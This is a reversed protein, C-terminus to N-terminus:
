LGSPAVETSRQTEQFELGRGRNEKGKMLWQLGSHRRHGKSINKCSGSVEQCTKNARPPLEYLSDWCLQASHCILAAELIVWVLMALLLRVVPSQTGGGTWNLLASTIVERLFLPWGKLFYLSWSIRCSAWTIPAGKCPFCLCWQKPSQAIGFPKQTRTECLYAMLWLQDARKKTKLKLQLIIAKGHQM